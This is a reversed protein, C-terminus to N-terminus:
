FYYLKLLHYFKCVLWFYFLNEVWGAVPISIRWSLSSAVANAVRFPYLLADMYVVAKLEQFVRYHGSIDIVLKDVHDVLDDHLIVALDDV